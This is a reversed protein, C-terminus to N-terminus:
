NQASDNCCPKLNRDWELYRDWIRQLKRGYPTPRGRYTEKRYRTESLRDYDLLASFGRLTARAKRSQAQQPYLARFASRSVFRGCVNYLKRCCKGTDPCVFYYYGHEGEPNLNSHKFMLRIREAVPAGDYSYSLYCVPVTRTDAMVCISAEVRDGTKWTVTGDALHRPRLIGLRKLDTVSLTLYEDITTAM